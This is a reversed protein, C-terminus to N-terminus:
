TMEEIHNVYELSKLAEIIEEHTKYKKLENSYISISISYVSLGSNLYAPNSEIDDIRLGLKRITDIFNTLYSANKLELHVEFHNSRNKMYLEFTPFLTLSLVLLAFSILSIVYLGAGITLGIIACVWLAVSTTIGKIQSRSSFITTNTAMIAVGVVVGASILYLNNEMVSDILMATTGAFMALIFTRLGAAHRKTSRESGIIAGFVLALALRLFVSGVTVNEAWEGLSHAIADRVYFM